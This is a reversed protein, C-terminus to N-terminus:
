RGAMLLREDRLLAQMRADKCMRSLGLTVGTLGCCRAAECQHTLVKGSLFDWMGGSKTTPPIIV